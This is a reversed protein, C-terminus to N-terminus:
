VDGVIIIEGPLSLTVITKYDAPHSEDQLDSFHLKFVTQVQSIFLMIVTPIPKRKIEVFIILKLFSFTNQETNGLPEFSVMSLNLLDDPTMKANKTMIMFDFFRM